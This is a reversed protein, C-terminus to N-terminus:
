LDDGGELIMGFWLLVLAFVAVLSFIAWDFEDKFKAEITYFVGILVAMERLADGLM